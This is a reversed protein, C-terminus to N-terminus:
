KQFSQPPRDAFSRDPIEASLISCLRTAWREAGATNGILDNRIEVLVAEIQRDDGHVPIAYDSDPSVVYPQNLTANLSEDRKLGALVDNAFDEASGFLVGVHWPRSVGLYM